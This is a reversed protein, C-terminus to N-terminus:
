DQSPSAEGLETEGSYKDFVSMLVAADDGCVTLLRNAQEKNRVVLRLSQKLDEVQEDFDVEVEEGNEDKGKESMAKQLALLEKRAVKDMRLANVLEVEGEGDGLDIFVSGYKKDAAARIDDLTFTNSM